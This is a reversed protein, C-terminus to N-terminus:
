GLQLQLTLKRFLSLLQLHENAYKAPKLKSLKIILEINDNVFEINWLTSRTFHSFNLETHIYIALSNTQDKIQIIGDTYRSFLDSYSPEVPDIFGQMGDNPLAQDNTPWTNTKAANCHYCSYVLNKYDNSPITCTFNSPNRPVFHDITFSKSKIKDFCNCYGCRNKFDQSLTKKYSKYNKCPKRLINRVPHTTRFPLASTTGPNSM